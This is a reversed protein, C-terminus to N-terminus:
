LDNEENMNDNLEDRNDDENIQQQQEDNMTNPSSIPTFNLQQVKEKEKYEKLQQQLALITQQMFEMEEDLQLVFGNSEALSNKLEEPDSM